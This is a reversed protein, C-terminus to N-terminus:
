WDERAQNGQPRQGGDHTIGHYFRIDKKQTASGVSLANGSSHNKGHVRGSFSTPHHITLNVQM